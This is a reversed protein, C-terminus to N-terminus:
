SMLLHSDAEMKYVCSCSAWKPNLNPGKMEPVVNGLKGAPTSQSTFSNNVRISM